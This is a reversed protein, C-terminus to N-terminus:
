AARRDIVVGAVTVIGYVCLMSAILAVLSGPAPGFSAPIQAVALAAALVLAARRARLRVRTSRLYLAVGAGLVALELLFAAAPANWLGLGLKPPGALVALDPRHVVFDLLWHSAVVAAVAFAPRVPAPGPLRRVTAFYVFVTWLLAAALSHTYPMFELVLPNSPLAPDLRAREIGLCLFIAWLVDLLQAALLLLWLPARPEIGKAAFATGYHGVFM